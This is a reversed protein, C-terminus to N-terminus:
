LHCNLPQAAMDIRRAAGAPILQIAMTSAPVTGENRILHVHDGGEDVFGMGQTYVKPRCDPDDSKYDTVTGATVIILSHGPHRHWGTDRGPQWVNNLVYLDSSGKVKQMSIWVNQGHGDGRWRNTPLVQQNFVDIDDFRGLAIQTGVFGTTPTARAPGMSFVTVAVAGGLFLCGALKGAMDDGKDIQPGCASGGIGDLGGQRGPDFPLIHFQRM